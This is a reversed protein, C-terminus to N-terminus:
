KHYIYCNDKRSLSGHSISGNRWADDNGDCHPDIQGPCECLSNHVHQDANVISADHDVEDMNEIMFEVVEARLKDSWCDTFATQYKGHEDRNTRQLEPSTSPVICWFFCRGDGEVPTVCMDPRVESQNTSSPQPQCDEHPTSVVAPRALSIHHANWCENQVSASDVSTDAPINDGTQCEEESSVLRVFDTEHFVDPNVPWLGCKEFGNNACGVTAAQNYADCLLSAVQFVTVSRGANTRLWKEIAQNYYVKLPRFFAVDLPQTRHTTHAPLSLMIVGSERALEIAELNNTHSSHGDLVLLM